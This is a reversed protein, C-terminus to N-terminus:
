KVCHWFYGTTLNCESPKRDKVSDIKCLVNGTLRLFKRVVRNKMNASATLSMLMGITGWDGGMTTIVVHDFVSFLTKLHHYTFRTFDQPDAHIPYVFPVSGIFVGGNKLIRYAEKVCSEPKELHELVETCIVLEAIEADLELECIDCLLDPNAKPDINVTTWSAAQSQPFQFGKKLNRYGGLDVVNKGHILHLKEKLKQKLLWRRYSVEANIPFSNTM